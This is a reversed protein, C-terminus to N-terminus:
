RDPPAPVEPPQPKVRRHELLAPAAEANRRIPDRDRPLHPLALFDLFETLIPREHAERWQRAASAAPSTPPQAAATIAMALFFLARFRM